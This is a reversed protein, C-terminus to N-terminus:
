VFAQAVTFVWCLWFYTMKKFIWKGERYSQTDTGLNVHSLYFIAKFGKFSRQELSPTWRREAQPSQSQNTQYMITSTINGPGPNEVEQRWPGWRQSGQAAMSSAWLRWVVMGPLGAKLGDGGLHWVQSYLWTLGKLGAQPWGFVVSHGWDFDAGRAASSNGRQARGQHM